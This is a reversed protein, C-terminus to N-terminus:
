GVISSLYLDSFIVVFFFSYLKAQSYNTWIHTKQLGLIQNRPLHMCTNALPWMHSFAHSSILFNHSTCLLVIYLLGFNYLEKWYWSLNFQLINLHSFLLHHHPHFHYLWWYTNILFLSYCNCFYHVAFSTLCLLSALVTTDCMLMLNVRQSIIPPKM